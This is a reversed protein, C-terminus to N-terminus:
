CKLRDLIHIPRYKEFALYVFLTPKSISARVGTGSGGWEGAGVGVGAGLAKPCTHYPTITEWYKPYIRYDQFQLTVFCIVWHCDSVRSFSFWSPGSWVYCYDSALRRFCILRLAKCEPYFKLLRCISKKKKGLFCSKVMVHLNEGISVTQM